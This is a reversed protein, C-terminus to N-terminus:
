SAIQNIAFPDELYFFASPVMSLYLARSVLMLISERSVFPNSLANFYSDSIVKALRDSAKKSAGERGSKMWYEKVYLKSAADVNQSPAAVDSHKPFKYSRSGLKKFHDCGEREMLHLLTEVSTAAGYVGVKSLIGQLFKM